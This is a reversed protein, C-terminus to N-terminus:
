SAIHIKYEEFRELVKRVYYVPGDCRCYGAAAVADRYYKPNSKQQLFFEVEHDWVDPKHKYKIALKQADIVHSLGVNYSALVFKMRESDDPITKKWYDDLFKFFRASASINQRPDWINNIGFFTATEPMIQMLGVAGAWSKVNPNFNSEQYAVSALLRWDWGLYKSAEKLQKDYPSLKDGTVSSYDSSALTMSFRPSNFYKEYLIQHTGQKKIKAIWMNIADLLQPSNKRTAWAIQQPQSLPTNIDISPYYFSNVLAHAYDAVAYKVEGFAVARILSETEADASDEKIIIGGGLEASLQMLRGKFASSKKVYVEKGVLQTTDRIMKKEVMNPPQMRWNAPKKQVLVQHTAFFPDSFSVYNAREKTVTLPFAIIDGEGRNLKDFAEDIGSIVKIKLKVKLHGALRQLLEYEYGMPSGRYIFYSVSNNDVLVSLSKEKQIDTLDRLLTPEKAFPSEEGSPKCCLLCFLFLIFSQGRTM